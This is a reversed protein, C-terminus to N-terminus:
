RILLKIDNYKPDHLDHPFTVNDKNIQHYIELIDDSDEGFPVMGTLM